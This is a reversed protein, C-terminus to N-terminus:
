SFSEIAFWISKALLFISSPLFCHERSSSTSCTILIQKSVSVRSNLCGQILLSNGLKVLLFRLQYAKALFYGLDAKFLAKLCVLAVHSVLWRTEAYYIDDIEAIFNEFTSAMLSNLGTVGECLSSLVDAAISAGFLLGPVQLLPLV